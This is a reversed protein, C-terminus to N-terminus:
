NFRNMAEDVKEEIMLGIIEPVKELTEEFKIRDDKRLRGLVHAVMDGDEPLKGV